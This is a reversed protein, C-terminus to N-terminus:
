AGRTFTATGFGLRLKLASVEQKLQSIEATHQIQFTDYRRTLLETEEDLRRNLGSETVLLKSTALDVRDALDGLEVSKRSERTNWIYLAQSVIATLCVFGIGTLITAQESM